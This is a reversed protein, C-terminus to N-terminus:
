KNYYKNKRINRKKKYKIKNFKHMNINLSQQLFKKLNSNEVM